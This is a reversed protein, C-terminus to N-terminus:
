LTKFPFFVASPITGNRFSRTATQYGPATGM